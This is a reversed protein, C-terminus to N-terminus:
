ATGSKAMEKQEFPALVFYGIILTALTVALAAPLLRKARRGYFGLFDLQGTAAIERLLLQTILFGSIAFFVDVGVFGGTLGPVGYHFAVVSLVAIARLGEVDARFHTAARSVPQMDIAACTADFRPFM